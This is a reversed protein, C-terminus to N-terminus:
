TMLLRTRTGFIDALSHSFAQRAINFFLKFFVGMDVDLLPCTGSTIM